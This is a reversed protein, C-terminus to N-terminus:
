IVEDVLYIHSGSGIGGSGGSGSTQNQANYADIESQIPDVAKGEAKWRNVSAQCSDNLIYIGAAYSINNESFNRTIKTVIM